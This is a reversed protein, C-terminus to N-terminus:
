LGSEPLIAPGIVIGANTSSRLHAFDVSPVRCEPVCCGHAKIWRRHRPWIKQIPMRVGMQPRKLRAPLRM